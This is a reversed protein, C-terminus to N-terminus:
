RAPTTTAKRFRELERRYQVHTDLQSDDRLGNGSLLEAADDSGLTRVVALIQPRDAPTARGYLDIFDSTIGSRQAPDLAAGRDSLALAEFSAIVVQKAKPRSEAFMLDRGKRLLGGQWLSSVAAVMEPELPDAGPALPSAEVAALLLTLRVAPQAQAAMAAVLVRRAALARADGAWRAFADALLGPNARARRLLDPLGDLHSGVAGSEGLGATGEGVETAARRARDRAAHRARVVGLAVVGVLLGALILAVIGAVGRDRPTAGSAAM